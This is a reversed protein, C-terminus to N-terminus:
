NGAEVKAVVQDLHQVNRENKVKLRKKIKKKVKQSRVQDPGVFVFSIVISVFILHVM